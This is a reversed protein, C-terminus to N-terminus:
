GTICLRVSGTGACHSPLETVIDCVPIGDLGRKGDICSGVNGRVNVADFSLNVLQATDIFDDNLVFLNDIFVFDVYGNDKYAFLLIGSNM